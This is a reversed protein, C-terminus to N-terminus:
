DRGLAGALLAIGLFSLATGLTSSRVFVHWGGIYLLAAGALITQIKNLLM